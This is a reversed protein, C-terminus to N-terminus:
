GKIKKYIKIIIMFIIAGTAVGLTDIFVDTILCSRGEVFYQHIEDTGAYIVGIAISYIIKKTEEINYTHIYNIILIGGILYISFHALKRVLPDLREALDEKESESMDKFISIINVVKETTKGSTRESEESPQNSFMFM